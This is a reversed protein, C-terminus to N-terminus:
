VDTDMEGQSKQIKFLNLCGHSLMKVVMSDLAMLPNRGHDGGLHVTPYDAKFGDDSLFKVQTASLRHGHRIGKYNPYVTEPILGKRLDEVYDTTMWYSMERATQALLGQSNMYELCKEQPIHFAKSFLTSLIAGVDEKVRAVKDPNNSDFTEKLSRGYLLISGWAAKALAELSGRALLKDHNEEKGCSDYLKETDLEVVARVDGRDRCGTPGINPFDTSIGAWQGVTGINARYFYPSLFYYVKNDNKNHFASCPDPGLVGNSWMAGVEETYCVLGKLVSDRDKLHYIYQEYNYGAPARLLMMHCSTDITNLYNILAQKHPEPLPTDDALLHCWQTKRAYDAAENVVKYDTTKSLAKNLITSYNDPACQWLLRAKDIDSLQYHSLTEQLSDSQYVDKVSLTPGTIGLQKKNKDCHQLRQTEQCFMRASEDKSQVKLYFNNQNKPDPFAITRGFVFPPSLLKLKDTQDEDMKKVSQASGDLKAIDRSFRSEPCPLLRDLAALMINWPSPESLQVGLPHQKQAFLEDQIAKNKAKLWGGIVPHIYDRPALKIFTCIIFHQVWQTHALYNQLSYHSDGWGKGTAMEIGSDQIKPLDPRTNRLHAPLKKLLDTGPCVESLKWCVLWDMFKKFGEASHLADETQLKELVTIYAAIPAQASDKQHRLAVIMSECIPSKECYFLIDALVHFWTPGKKYTEWQSLFQTAAQCGYNTILMKLKSAFFNNTAPSPHM